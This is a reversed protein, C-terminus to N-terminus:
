SRLVGQDVMALHIRAITECFSTNGHVKRLDRVIAALKPRDKDNDLHKRLIQVVARVTDNSAAM